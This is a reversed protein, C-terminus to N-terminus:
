CFGSTLIQAVANEGGIFGSDVTFSLWSSLFKTAYWINTIKMMCYSSMLWSYWFESLIYHNQFCQTWVSLENYSDPIELMDAFM